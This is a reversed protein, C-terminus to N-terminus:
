RIWVLYMNRSFAIYYIVIFQLTQSFRTDQINIQNMCSVHKPWVCYLLYCYITTNSQFTYRTHKDSEYLICTEALCLIIFLLLNYHKVSVHIKYTQCIGTATHVTKFVQHHVSLGDSVHLTDNWFLVFKICQHMQNTKSCFYSWATEMVCYGRAIHGDPTCWVECRGWKTNLRKFSQVWKQWWTVGSNM